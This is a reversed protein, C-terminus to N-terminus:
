CRYRTAGSTTSTPTGQVTRRRWILGRVGHVLPAITSPWKLKSQGQATPPLGDAALNRLFEDINWTSPAGLPPEGRLARFVDAAWVLMGRADTVGHFGRFVLRPPQPAGDAGPAHGPVFLVECTPGGDNLTTQLAPDTLLDQGPRLSVVRTAPAIGSDVWRRRRRHLRTGPCVAAATRVAEALAEVTLDGEGEFVHTIVNPVGMGVYLWELPGIRRVYSPSSTTTVFGEL